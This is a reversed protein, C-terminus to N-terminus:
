RCSRSRRVVTNLLLTGRHLPSADSSERKIEGEDKKGQGSSERVQDEHDSSLCYEMEEDSDPDRHIGHRHAGSEDESCLDIM